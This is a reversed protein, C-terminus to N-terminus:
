QRNRSHTTSPIITLADIQTSVFIYM